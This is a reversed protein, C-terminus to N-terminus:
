RVEGDHEGNSVLELPKTFIELFQEYEEPNYYYSRPNQAIGLRSFGVRRLLKYTKEYATGNMTNLQWLSFNLAWNSFAKRYTDYLGCNKLETQMALLAIYFCDWSKDRTRSLSTTVQVRQHAMMEDIAIIREAKALSIFVFYMDNTTRLNQYEINIKEVFERKFLKDWAWGNFMRFINDCYPSEKPNFAEYIPFFEKRFSWTCPKFTDEGEVYLDAGFVCVDANGVVAARYADELMDPEFFDDADLFSLYEGRAVRLGCNRAAGAGQNEQNIVIVREDLLQYATLIDLSGDTSGDNVCIVEIEKLYQQLISDLCQKLYKEANYICIIVSVKINNKM